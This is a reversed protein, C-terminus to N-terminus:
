KLRNLDIKDAKCLLHLNQHKLHTARANTTMKLHTEGVCIGYDCDGIVRMCFYFAGMSGKSVKPALLINDLCTHSFFLNSM